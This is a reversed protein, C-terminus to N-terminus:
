NEYGLRVIYNGISKNLLDVDDPILEKNYRYRQGKNFHLTGFKKTEQNWNKQNNKNYKHNIDEYNNESSLSLNHSIEQILIDINDAFDEYKYVKADNFSKWKLAQEFYDVAAVISSELSNFAFFASPNKAYHDMASVIVDRPDRVTYFYKIEFELVNDRLYGFFDKSPFNHVKIVFTKGDHLPKLLRKFNDLNLQGVFCDDAIIVDELKYDARIERVDSYGNEILMDNIINFCLASGSKQLGASIILM